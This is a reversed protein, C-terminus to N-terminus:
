VTGLHSLGNLRKNKKQVLAYIQGMSTIMAYIYGLYGLSHLEAIGEASLADLKDEDITYVGNIQQSEGNVFDIELRMSQLLELSVLKEVFDQIKSEGDLLEALQSQIRQLYPAAGGESDFLPEGDTADLCDSDSDFCIVHQGDSDGLFFPQRGINLPTYLTDEDGFFLNEGQQFGFMAICVFKGTEKNKTLAIPFQVALKLFENLMVPIMSFGKGQAEVREPIVRLKRHANNHLTVINSM